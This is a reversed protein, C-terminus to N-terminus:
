RYDRSKNEKLKEVLVDRSSYVDKEHRTIGQAGFVYQISIQESSEVVINIKLVLSVCIENNEIFYVKQGHKYKTKIDM